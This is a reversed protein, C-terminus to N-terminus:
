QIVDPFNNPLNKSTGKLSVPDKQDHNLEGPSDDSKPHMSAIDIVRGKTQHEDFRCDPLARGAIEALIIVGQIAVVPPPRIQPNTFNLQNFGNGKNWYRMRKGLPEDAGDFTFIQILIKEPVPAIRFYLEFLKLDVVVGVPEM